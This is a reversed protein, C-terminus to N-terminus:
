QARSLGTQKKEWYRLNLIAQTIWAGGGLAEPVNVEIAEQSPVGSTSLRMSNLVIVSSAIGCYLPNLQPQFNDALQFYDNKYESRMLRDRGSPTDWAIIAVGSDPSFQTTHFEGYSWDEVSASFSTDALMLGLITVLLRVVAPYNM